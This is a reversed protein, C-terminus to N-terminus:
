GGRAGKYAAFQGLLDDFDVPPGGNLEDIVAETVDDDWGMIVM